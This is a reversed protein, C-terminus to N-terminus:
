GDEPRGEDGTGSEELEVKDGTEEGEYAQKM